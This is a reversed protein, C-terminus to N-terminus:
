NVIVHTATLTSTAQTATCTYTTIITTTGSVTGTGCGFSSGTDYAMSVNSLHTDNALVLTASTINAGTADLTYTLSNVTAGSVTTSGYGVTSGTPQTNSATFASVGAFALGAVAAATLVKATRSGSTSKLNLGM